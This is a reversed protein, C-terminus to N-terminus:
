FSFRNLLSEKMSLNTKAFPRNSKVCIEPLQRFQIFNTKLMLPFPKNEDCSRQDQLLKKDKRVELAFVNGSQTDVAVFAQFGRVLDADAYITTRNQLIGFGFGSASRAHEDHHTTPSHGGIQVWKAAYKEREARSINSIVPHKKMQKSRGYIGTNDDTVFSPVFHNMSDFSDILRQNLYDCFDKPTIGCKELHHHLDKLSPKKEFSPKEIWQDLQNWFLQADTHKNMRHSFKPVKRMESVIKILNQKNLRGHLCILKTNKVAYACQVRGNKIDDLLISRIISRTSASRGMPDTIRNENWEQSWTFAYKEHNGFLIPFEIGKRAAQRQLFRLYIMSEFPYGGRDIIDGLQVFTKKQAHNLNGKEDIIGAIYLNQICLPLAGHVDGFLICDYPKKHAKESIRKAIDPTVDTLAERIAKDINQMCAVQIPEPININKKTYYSFLALLERRRQTETNTYM